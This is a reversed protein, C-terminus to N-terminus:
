RMYDYTGWDYLDERAKFFLAGAPLALAFAWLGRTHYAAACLATFGLFIFLRLLKPVGTILSLNVTFFLSLAIYVPLLLAYFFGLSLCVLFFPTWLPLSLLSLFLASRKLYLAYRLGGSLSLLRWNNNAASDVLGGFSVCPLALFVMAYNGTIRGEPPLGGRLLGSFEAMLYVSASLLCFYVVLFDANLYDALISKFRPMCRGSERRPRVKAAERRLFVLFWAAAGLTFLTLVAAAIWLGLYLLFLFVASGLVMPGLASIKSFRAMLNQFVLSSAPTFALFLGLAPLARDPDVGVVRALILCCLLLPLLAAKFAGCFRWGRVITEYAYRSNCFRGLAAELGDERVLLSIVTIGQLAALVLSIRGQDLELHLRIGQTLFLIGLLLATIWILPSLFFLGKLRKLSLKVAFILLTM